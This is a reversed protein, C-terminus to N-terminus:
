AAVRAPKPERAVAADPVPEINATPFGTILNVLKNWARLAYGCPLPMKHRCVALKRVERPVHWTSHSGAPFFVMDGPGLRHEDGKEDTVFIEGSIIHLTEDVSYHWTFRGATCSWAIVSSTCDASRALIKSRAQPTGEIIWDPPIPAPALDVDAPSAFAVPAPM